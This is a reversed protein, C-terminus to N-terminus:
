AYARKRQIALEREQAWRHYMDDPPYGGHRKAYIALVQADTPSKGSRKRVSFFIQSLRKLEEPKPPPPPEFQDMKREVLRGDKQVIIRTRPDAQFGCAPCRLGEARVTGCRPCVIPNPAKGEQVDRTRSEAIEKETMSFMAEWDRNANPSGHRIMNAGHDQIVAHTKGSEPCARIVRGVSQVYNALSGYPRALILHRLNPIDIGEQVVQCHCLVDFDGAKM